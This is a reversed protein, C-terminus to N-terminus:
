KKAWNTRFCYMDVVKSLMRCVQTSYLIETEANKNVGVAGNRKLRMGSM